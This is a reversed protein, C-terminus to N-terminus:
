TLLRAHALTRRMPTGVVAAAGDDDPIVCEVVTGTGVCQLEDQVEAQAGEQQPQSSTPPAAALAVGHRVRAQAATVRSGGARARRPAAAACGSCRLARPTAATRCPPTGCRLM